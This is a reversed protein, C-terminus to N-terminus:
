QLRADIRCRRQENERVGDLKLRAEVHKHLGHLPQDRGVEVRISRLLEHREGHTHKGLEERVLVKACTGLLDAM